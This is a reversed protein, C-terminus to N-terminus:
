GKFRMWLTGKIQRKTIPGLKESSTSRPDTGAITFVQDSIAIIRKVILGFADHEILVTKGTRPVLAPGFLAYSGNPLDPEM